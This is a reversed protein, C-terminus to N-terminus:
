AVVRWSNMLSTTAGCIVTTYHAARQNVPERTGRCVPAVDDISPLEGLRRARDGQRTMAAPRHERAPLRVERRDRTRGRPAIRDDAIRKARADREAQDRVAMGREAHQDADVRADRLSLPDLAQAEIPRPRPHEARFPGKVEEVRPLLLGQERGLL